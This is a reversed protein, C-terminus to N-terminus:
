GSFSKIQGLVIFPKLQKEAEFIIDYVICSAAYLMFMLHKISHVDLKPLVMICLYVNANSTCLFNTLSAVESSGVILMV